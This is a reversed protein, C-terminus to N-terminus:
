APVKKGTPKEGPKAERNPKTESDPKPAQDPTAARATRRNHSRQTLAAITDELWAISDQEYRIGARLTLYPGVRRATAVYEEHSRGKLMLEQTHLYADLKARSHELGQRLDALLPETDAVDAARVKVLLDNKFATPRSPTAVFRDLEARGEDTIAM